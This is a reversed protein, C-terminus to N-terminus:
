TACGALMAPAAPSPSPLPDRVRRSPMSPWVLPAPGPTRLRGRACTPNVWCSMATESGRGGATSAAAARSGLRTRRPRGSCASGPGSGAAVLQELSEVLGLSVRDHVLTRRQEHDGAGPRALRPHEGAPDGPQDGFAVGVGARDQRDGEGVLGGGLHPLPDLLEDAIAGPDHPDAGEVRGADPDQALLDRLEVLGIPGAVLRAERDVVGGVGLPQHGQHATVEVEVDLPEM